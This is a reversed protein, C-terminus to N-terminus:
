LLFTVFNAEAKSKGFFFIIITDIHRLSVLFIMEIL